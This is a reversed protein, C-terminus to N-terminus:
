PAAVVVELVNSDPLGNMTKSGLFRVQYVGPKTLPYSLLLDFHVTQSEGGDLSIEDGSGPKGRKKLVGTYGVRTGAPDSVHLINGKFGEIPTMYRCFKQPKTGTNTVTFALLVQGGVQPPTAPDLSLTVQWSPAKKQAPSEMAIMCLCLGILVVLRYMKEMTCDCAVAIRDGAAIEHFLGM